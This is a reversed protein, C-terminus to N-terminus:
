LGLETKIANAVFDGFIESGEQTWHVDNQEDAGQHLHTISNSVANLDYVPIQLENMVEIAAANYDEVRRGQTYPENIPIHTTTLFLVAEAKMKIKTGILRLNAKYQAITSVNGDSMDWIGHNFTVLKFPVSSQNLWEDVKKVGNASFMANGANHVVKYQPLQSQVQPTYGISVSDGIILIDAAQPGSNSGACSALALFLLSFIMKTKMNNTRKLYKLMFKHLASIQSYVQIVKLFSYRTVNKPISGRPM